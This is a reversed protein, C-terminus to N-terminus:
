LEDKGMAVEEDQEYPYEGDEDERILAIIDELDMDEAFGMMDEGDFLDEMGLGDNDYHPDDKLMISILEALIDPRDALGEFGVEGSEGFLEAYMAPDDKLEQELQAILEPDQKLIDQMVEHLLGPDDELM